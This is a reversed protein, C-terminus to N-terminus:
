RSARAWRSTPSPAHGVLRRRATRHGASEGPFAIGTTSASASPTWGSSCARSAWRAHRDQRRRRQEVVPPDRAGHLHRHRPRAGRPDDRDAVPCAHAAAHVQTTPRSSATPWPARSRSWSSSPAPSTSTPSPATATTGRTAGSSTTRSARCTSWRWSRAAARTWSSPRRPRRAPARARTSRRARGRRHVPHGRRHHPARRRRPRAADPRITRLAHGAPDRVVVESGAEGSLEDDYQLELGALGQNDVGAFGLVQAASGKM